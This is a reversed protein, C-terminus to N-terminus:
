AAEFVGCAQRGGADGTSLTDDDPGDPAYREPINGYNDPGDHVIIASGDDDLLVSEEIRDTAVTMHGEGNDNVLLAPLDGGHDPHEHGESGLHGGASLFDGTEPDASDDGPATSDPECAGVTHLHMGYMGPELGSFSVKLETTGADEGDPASLEATGVDDGAANKVSATAIPASADATDDTPPNGDGDGDTTCASLALLGAAGLAIVGRRRNVAGNRRSTRTSDTAPSHSTTTSM